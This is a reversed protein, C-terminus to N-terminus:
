HIPKLDSPFKTGTEGEWREVEDDTWIQVNRLRGTSGPNNNSDEPPQEAGIEDLFSFTIEQGDGKNSAITIEGNERKYIWPKDSFPDPSLSAVYDPVLQKLTEPYAGNEIWYLRLGALLLTLRREATGWRDQDALDIYKPISYRIFWNKERRKSALAYQKKMEEYEPSYPPTFCLAELSDLWHNTLVMTSSSPFRLTNWRWNLNTLVKQLTTFEPLWEAEPTRYLDYLWLNNFRLEFILSRRLSNQLLADLGELEKLIVRCTQAKLLDSMLSERLLSHFPTESVLNIIATILWGPDSLQKFIKTTILIEPLSDDIGKEGLALGTNALAIKIIKWTGQGDDNIPYWDMYSPLETTTIPGIFKTQQAGKKILDLLEQHNRLWEALVPYEEAKWPSQPPFNGGMCLEDLDVGDLMEVAQRYYTAANIEPSIANVKEQQFKSFARQVAHPDGSELAEILPVIFVVYVLFFVGIIVLSIIRFLGKRWYKRFIITAIYGLILNQLPIIVVLFPEIVRVWREIILSPLIVNPILLLIISVPFCVPIFLATALTVNFVTVVLLGLLCWIVGIAIPLYPLSRTKGSKSSKPDDTRMM